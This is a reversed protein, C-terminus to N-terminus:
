SVGRSADLRLLLVAMQIPATIRAETMATAHIKATFPDVGVLKATGDADADADGDAATGEARGDVEATAASVTGRGSRDVRLRSLARVASRAAPSRSPITVDAFEARTASVTKDTDTCDASITAPSGIAGPWATSRKTADPKFVIGAIAPIGCAAATAATCLAPKATCIRCCDLADTAGPVTIPELGLVPVTCDRVEGTTIETAIAGAGVGVGLGVGVGFALGLTLGLGVARGLELGLADGTGDADAVAM